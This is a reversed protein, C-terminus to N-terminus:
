NIYNKLFMIFKEYYHYVLYVNVLLLGPFIIAKEFMGGTKIRLFRLPPIGFRISIPFFIPVGDKTLMDVLIHSIFGVMFAFHVVDMDVLVVNEALNLFWRLLYNFIAIGLISHSIYRHSGFLPSILRGWFSGAPIRRWLSATPQDLDPALGGIFNATLAVFATPLSIRELPQTAIIYTLATFATLDHTRGTM